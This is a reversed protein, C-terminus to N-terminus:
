LNESHDDPHENSTKKTLGYVLQKVKKTHRATM